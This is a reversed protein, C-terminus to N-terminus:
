WGSHCWLINAATAGTLDFTVELLDAGEHRVEIVAPSIDGTAEDYSTIRRTDHISLVITDVFREAAVLEADAVGTLASMTCAANGILEPVWLVSSTSNPRTARRWATIRISFTQNDDGTGFPMILSRLGNPQWVVLNATPTTSDVTEPKTITPILAPFDGETSNNVLGRTWASRPSGPTQNFAM